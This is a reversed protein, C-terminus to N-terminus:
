ELGSVGASGAEFCEPPTFHQTGEADYIRPTRSQRNSRYLTLIEGGKGVASRGLLCDPQERVMSTNFDGIQWRGWLAGLLQLSQLTLDAQASAKAALGSQSLLAELEQSRVFGMM